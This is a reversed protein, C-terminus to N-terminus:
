PHHVLWALAHAQTEFWSDSAVVRKQPPTFCPIPTSLDVVAHERCPDTTWLIDPEHLRAETCSARRHITTAHAYEFRVRLVDLVDDAAPGTGYPILLFRLYAPDIHHKLQQMLGLVSGVIVLDRRSNFTSDVIPDPYLGLPFALRITRSTQQIGSVERTYYLLENSIWRATFWDLEATSDLYALESPLINQLPGRNSIGSYGGIPYTTPDRLSRNRPMPSTAVDQRPLPTHQEFQAAIELYRRFRFRKSHSDLARHHRALLQDTRDFGVDHRGPPQSFADWRNILSERQIPDDTQNFGREVVDAETHQDLWRSTGPPVPQTGPRLTRSLWQGLVLAIATPQEDDPLLAIEDMILTTNPHRRLPRLIYQQCREFSQALVSDVPPVNMDNGDLTAILLPIVGIPPSPLGQVELAAIVALTRPYPVPAGSAIALEIAIADNM